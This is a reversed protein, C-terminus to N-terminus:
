KIELTLEEDKPTMEGQGTKQNFNLYFEKDEYFIKFLIWDGKGSFGNDQKQLGNGMCIFDFKM